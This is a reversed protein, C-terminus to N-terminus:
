WRPRPPVDWSASIVPNLRVVMARPRRSISCEFLFSDEPIRREPAPRGNTSFFLWPYQLCEFFYQLISRSSIWNCSQLPLSFNTSLNCLLQLSFTKLDFM